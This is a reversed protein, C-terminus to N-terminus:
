KKLEAIDHEVMLKILKKFTIQPKFNFAKKAKSIDGVLYSTDSPRAYKPDFEVYDSPNLDVIKFAEHLFEKVTHVKGTCIIFDDAYDLQM